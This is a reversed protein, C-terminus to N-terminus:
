LEARKCMALSVQFLSTVYQGTWAILLVKKGPNLVLDLVVARREAQRRPVAEVKGESVLLWADRKASAKWSFADEAEELKLFGVLNIDM